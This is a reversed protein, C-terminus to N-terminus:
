VRNPVQGNQALDAAKHRSRGELGVNVMGQEALNIQHFTYLRVQTMKLQLKVMHLTHHIIDKM